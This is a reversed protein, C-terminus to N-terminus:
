YLGSSLMFLTCGKVTEIGNNELLLELESNETGPNFIVRKPCLDVMKRYYEMQRQPGVYMTVTHIDKVEPFHTQIPIGGVESERKALAVVDHGSNILAHVAMYSYRVPNSSAGIVLTKKSEM